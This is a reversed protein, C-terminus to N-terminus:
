EQINGYIAIFLEKDVYCFKDFNQVCWDYDEIIKRRVRNTYIIDDVYGGCFGTIDEDFGFECKGDHYYCNYCSLPSVRRNYPKLVRSCITIAESTTFRNNNKKNM